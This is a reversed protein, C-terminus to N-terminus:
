ETVNAGQDADLDVIESHHVPVHEDQHVAEAAAAPPVEQQPNEQPAPPNVAPNPQAPHQLQVVIPNGAQDLLQPGVQDGYQNLVGVEPRQQAPPTVGKPYPFQEAAINVPSPGFLNEGVPM